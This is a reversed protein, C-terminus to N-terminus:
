GQGAPPTVAHIADSQSDVLVAGLSPTGPAMVTVANGAGSNVKLAVGQPNDVEFTPMNSTTTLVTLDKEINTTALVLNAM